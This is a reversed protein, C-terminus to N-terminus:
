YWHRLQNTCTCTHTHAHTCTHTHTNSVYKNDSAGTPSSMQYVYLLGDTGVACKAVITKGHAEVRVDVEIDGAVTEDSAEDEDEDEDAANDDANDDANVDDLEQQPDQVEEADQDIENAPV